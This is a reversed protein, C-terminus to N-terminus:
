DIIIKNKGDISQIIEILDLTNIEGKLTSKDLNLIEEKKFEKFRENKIKDIKSEFILLYEPLSYFTNGNTLCERRKMMILKPKELLHIVKEKLIENIKDNIKYNIDILSNIIEFENKDNKFLLYNEEDDKFLLVIRIAPSPYYDKYFFNIRSFNVNEFYNLENMLEEELKIILNEKKSIDEELKYLQILSLEKLLFNYLELNKKENM